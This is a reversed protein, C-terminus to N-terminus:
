RANVAVIQLLDLGAHQKVVGEVAPSPIGGVLYVVPRLRTPLPSDHLCNSDNVVAFAALRRREGLCKHDPQADAEQGETSRGRLNRQHM